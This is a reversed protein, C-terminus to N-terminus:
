RSLCYIRQKLDLYHSSYTWATTVRGYDHCMRCIIMGYDQFPSLYYKVIIPLKPIFVITEDAFSYSSVYFSM